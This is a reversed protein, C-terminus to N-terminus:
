SNMIYKMNRQQFLISMVRSMHNIPVQHLHFGLALELHFGQVNQVLSFYCKPVSGDSLYLHLPLVKTRLLGSPFQLSIQPFRMWDQELFSVFVSSLTKSFPSLIHCGGFILIKIKTHQFNIEMKQCIRIQFNKEM